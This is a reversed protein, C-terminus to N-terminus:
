VGLLLREPAEIAGRVRALFQVAEAGDILRHDYSLALYMMPRVAVQGPRDPDEVARNKIAHMGLIASQPPNLIPTSMLSGYVGGNTITFTGGQLDDLGLKGERARTALDKVGAEIQAFSLGQCDRLVPVVLGKPTGVAIAIDCWDHYEIEAAGGPAAVISANVAPFAELAQVVARVFFSMFGLGVGHRKEFSEKHRSRLDMVASMDAENFTTLMAATHQAEVLRAAVRQRLPSMRERRPVRVGRAPASPGPLAGPAPAPAASKTGAPAGSDSGSERPTAPPAAPGPSDAGRQRVLATVDQERIRGGAGTGRVHALDLGHEGAIKRALPTAKSAGGTSGPAPTAEAGGSAHALAGATAPPQGHGNTGATETGAAEEIRGIVAGVPVTQGIEASTVLRGSAPANIELTIKDTELDAIPDDRRVLEGSRKRWAAIVGERVSEGMEPIVINTPM